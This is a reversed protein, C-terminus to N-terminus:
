RIGFTEAVGLSLLEKLYLYGSGDPEDGWTERGAFVLVQKPDDPDARSACDRADPPWAEFMDTVKDAIAKDDTLKAAILQEGCEQCVADEVPSEIDCAYCVGVNSDRQKKLERQLRKIARSLTARSLKAPGKVLYGVLDAGM